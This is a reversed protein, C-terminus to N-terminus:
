HARLDGFQWNLFWRFDLKGNVHTGGARDSYRYWRRKKGAGVLYDFSKAKHLVKNRSTETLDAIRMLASMASGCRSM